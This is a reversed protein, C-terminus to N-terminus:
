PGVCPDLLNKTQVGSRGSTQDEEDFEFVVWVVANCIKYINTSRPVRITCRNPSQIYLGAIATRIRRPAKWKFVLVKCLLYKNASDFRRGGAHIIPTMLVPGVFSKLIGNNSRGSLHRLTVLLSPYCCLCGVVPISGAVEQEQTRLLRTVVLTCERRSAACGLLSPDNGSRDQPFKM